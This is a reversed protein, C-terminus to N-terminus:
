YSNWPDTKSRARYMANTIPNGGTGAKAFVPKSVVPTTGSGGAINIPNWSSPGSSSPTFSTGNGTGSYPKDVPSAAVEPQTTGGPTPTGPM